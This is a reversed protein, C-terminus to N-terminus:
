IAALRSAILVVDSTSSGRSLAAGGARSSAGAFTQPSGDRGVKTLAREPGGSISQAFVNAVGDRFV